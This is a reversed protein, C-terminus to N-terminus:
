EFVGLLFHASSIWDVLRSFSFFLKIRWIWFSRWSFYDSLDWNCVRWNSFWFTLKFQLLSKLQLKNSQLNCAQPYKSFKWKVFLLEEFINSNQKSKSFPQGSIQMQFDCKIWLDIFNQSITQRFWKELINLFWWWNVKFREYKSYLDLNRLLLYKENFKRYYKFRESKPYAFHDENIFLINLILFEISNWRTPFLYRTRTPDIRNENERSIIFERM